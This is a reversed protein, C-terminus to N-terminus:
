KLEFLKIYLDENIWFDFANANIEVMGLGNKPNHYYLRHMWDPIYICFVTKGELHVHHLHSGKFFGNLTKSGLGRHKANWQSMFEKKFIYRHELSLWCFRGQTYVREVDYAVRYKIVSKSKEKLPESTFKIIENDQFYEKYAEELDSEEIDTITVM